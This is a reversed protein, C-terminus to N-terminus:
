RGGTRRRATLEEEAQHSRETRRGHDSCRWQRRVAGSGVATGAAVGMVEEIMPPLQGGGVVRSGLETATAWLLGDGSAAAAGGGNRAVV